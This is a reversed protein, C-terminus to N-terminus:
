ESVCHYYYSKGAYTPWGCDSWPALNVRGQVLRGEDDFVLAECGISVSPDKIVLTGHEFVLTGMGLDMLPTCSVTGADANAAGAPCVAIPECYGIVATQEVMANWLSGFLCKTGANADRSEGILDPSSDGALSPGIPRGPTWAVDEIGADRAAVSPGDGGCAVGIAVVSSGLLVAIARTMLALTAGPGEAVM